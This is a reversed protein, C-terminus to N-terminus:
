NRSGGPAIAAVSLLGLRGPIRGLWKDLIEIVTMAVGSHFLIEGMLIFLPIPLIVFTALSTFISLILQELGALGGFFVYMGVMSVLM